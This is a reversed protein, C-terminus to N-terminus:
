LGLKAEPIITETNFYQHLASQCSTVIRVLQTLQTHAPIGHSLGIFTHWVMCSGIIGM